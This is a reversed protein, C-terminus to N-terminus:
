WMSRDIRGTLPALSSGLEWALALDGCMGWAWVPVWSTVPGPDGSCQHIPRGGGPAM